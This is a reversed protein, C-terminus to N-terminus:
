TGLTSYFTFIGYVYMYIYKHLFEIIKNQQFPNQEFMLYFFRVNEQEFLNCLFSSNRLSSKSIEKSEAINRSFTYVNSLVFCALVGTREVRLAQPLACGPLICRFLQRSSSFSFFNEAHRRFRSRAPGFNMNRWHVRQNGAGPVTRHTRSEPQM